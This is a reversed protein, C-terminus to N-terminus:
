ETKVGLESKRFFGIRVRGVDPKPREEAHYETDIIGHVAGNRLRGAPFNLVFIERFVRANEM